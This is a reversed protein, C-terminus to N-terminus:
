TFARVKGASVQLSQACMERFHEGNVCVQDRLPERNGHVPNCALGFQPAPFARSPSGIDM